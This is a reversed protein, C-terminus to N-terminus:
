QEGKTYVLGQHLELPTRPPTLPMEPPLKTAVNGELIFTQPRVTSMSASSTTMVSKSPASSSLQYYSVRTRINM